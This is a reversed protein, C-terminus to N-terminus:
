PLHLPPKPVQAPEPRPPTSVKGARRRGEYNVWIFLESASGFYSEQQDLLAANVRFITLGLLTGVVTNLEALEELDAFSLQGSKDDHWVCHSYQNRIKLCYRMAGVAREFPTGLGLSHYYPRALGDAIKVRASEGRARYMAKLVPDLDHAWLACNMLDLELTSYGMLLRGVSAAEDPFNLFAENRIPAM